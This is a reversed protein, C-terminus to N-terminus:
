LLFGKGSEFVLFARLAFVVSACIFALNPIFTETGERVGVVCFVFSVRSACFGCICLHFSFRLLM